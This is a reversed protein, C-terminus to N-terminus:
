CIRVAVIVLVLTVASPLGVPLFGVIMGISNVVNSNFTIYSPYTPNLWVIWTIWITIISLVTACLVFLIFRNVERHLGTIEDTSSSRTLRSVHGLITQDGTAVVIAEGNGEAILSSYFVMNTTELLNENTPITTCKVPKSEGTLESNNVKLNQCSIIRCDAPVKDGIQLLIIDGPVLHSTPIQQERGNNRRVTTIKPLIQAFSRIIKLSKMKQYVNLIANAIIVITLVIGLGLSYFFLFSNKFYFIIKKTINSLQIQNHTEL